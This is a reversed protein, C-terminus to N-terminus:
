CVNKRNALGAPREKPVCGQFVENVPASCPTSGLIPILVKKNLRVLRPHQEGWSRWLQLGIVQMDSIWDPTPLVNKTAHQLDTPRGGMIGHM